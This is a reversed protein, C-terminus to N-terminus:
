LIICLHLPSTEGFTVPQGRTSAELLFPRLETFLLQAMDGMGAGVGAILAM